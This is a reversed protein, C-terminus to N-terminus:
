GWRRRLVEATRDDAALFAEIHLEALTTSTPPVGDSQNNENTKSPSTM